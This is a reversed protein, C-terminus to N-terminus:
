ALRTKALAYGVVLAGVGIMGYLGFLGLLMAAGASAIALNSFDHQQHRFRLDPDTM